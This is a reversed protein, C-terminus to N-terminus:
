KVLLYSVVANENADEAGSCTGFQAKATFDVDGDAYITLGAIGNNKAAVQVDGAASITAGYSELKSASSFDGGAYITVGGGAACDDDEGLRVKAAAYVSKNGTDRSVLIVDEFSSGKGLQIKCESVIVVESVQSDKYFQAKNGNGGGCVVEYIRGPAFNTYKVDKAAIQIVAASTNIYDPQSDYYPNLYNDALTEIDSVYPASIGAKERFINAYTLGASSDETGRGVVTSMSVSSPWDIDNFSEVYIRNDDDFENGTNLSVGGAAAVCYEGYFDNNSTMSFEGNTTIDAVTCEQTSRFAISQVEINWSALGAYRLLFTPLPNSTANARSATVRVANPNTPTVTFTKEESDWTGFEITDENIADISGSTLNAQALELAADLAKSTSPLELAAAHAASDAAVQLALKERWANNSDLSLGSFLIVILMVVLALHTVMGGEDSAFEALRRRARRTIDSGQTM